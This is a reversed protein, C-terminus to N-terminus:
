ETLLFNLSAQMPNNVQKRKQQKTKSRTATKKKHVTLRINKNIHFYYINNMATYMLISFLYIVNFHM